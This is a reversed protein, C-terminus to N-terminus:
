VDHISRNPQSDKRKPTNNNNEANPLTLTAPKLFVPKKKKKSVKSIWDLPEYPIAKKETFNADFTIKKPM